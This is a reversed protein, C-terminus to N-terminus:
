YMTEAQKLQKRKPHIPNINIHRIYFTRGAMICVDIIPSLRCLHQSCQGTVQPGRMEVADPTACCVFVGSVHLRAAWAVRLQSVLSTVRDYHRNVLQRNPALHFSLDQVHCSM